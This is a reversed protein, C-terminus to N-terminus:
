QPAKWCVHTNVLYNWITAIFYGFATSFYLNAVDANRLNMALSHNIFAGTACIANFMLFGRVLPVTGKFRQKRFTISNNLFFNSIISAEVAVMLAHSADLSFSSTMLKLVILNVVMGICGVFFYNLFRWSFVSSVKSLGWLAELYDYIVDNSLKSEGHQRGRFTYGVEKVASAPTRALYELLIKFGKPNVQPTTGEHLTRTIGFFGSMPDTVQLPLVFHALRTAFWSVFRRLASWDEVGGGDVKRSGVVLQAGARFAEIFKVLAQEDHQLDADMVVLWQGAALSFGDVVAPSLGKNQMRRVSRLWPRTQALEEALQWTGDPSNDDVVLVEFTCLPTLVQELREILIPINARENFTPLILSLAIPNMM